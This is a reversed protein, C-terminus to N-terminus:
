SYLIWLDGVQGDSSGPASTSQYINRAVGGSNNAYSTTIQSARFNAESITLNGSSAGTFSGTGVLVRDASEDWGIFVNDDSGREIVIGSDGSASGSNGTGLEILQDEITTNTASNTVTSGNVTLDGSVVVDNFTVDSSTGVAQGISVTATAGESGSGSVSVGTGASVGAVYNGTTHTTLDVSNNAISTSISVNGKATQTATGTVDGTLAFDSDAVVFDLNGDTDDYSVSIGTETGDLMGGVFDEVNEQTLQTNNTSISGGLAVATGDITISSNSLLSNGISGALKSAAISGALMANTVGGAKVQLTDSDTEISSDDVNVSVVGSSFALGDGAVTSSLAVDNANATIGDGGIVNLTVAGSSGGGTLGTGATVSEIDGADNTFSFAGTSSDYSLDGGASFLGRIHSSSVALDIAADGSDDYSATIGTHSGNTVLQAGVTDQINEFPVRIELDNNADDYSLAVNVGASLLGNVRDDVRENTFYLNSGEAVSGTDLSLSGGLSVSSGNLTIASNALEANAVGGNKITVAGSSVAFNDSSFSAVGKNSTTADEASYTVTGSSEAVDIGEGASFTITGGLSTATSNSGDTVTISSNALKSNAISGALMANTVGAAKVQVTDSSIELSSDDVNVNLTADGSTAGGTLGSGAVVSSIDGSGTGFGADNDFASLPIESILKRRDAGNDLIILEDETNDVNATMDTLESLDVALSVAGSSGGGSLGVGATVSEIDGADNTFSIVGTSSNYSLDGSASIASRARANTFYLNSSGEGIDDTDLTASGGLSVSNSNITVASNALKSNAISGALMANTVGSAKVRVTDSDIELSSDDVQVNLTVDGSTGGGTLGSGAVVSTIDASNTNAITLSGAGDDYTLSIGTGATLLADVRDDVRENTFYLNTSGETIEDTNDKTAIQAEVFAKVSQQSPIHTASNSAMNDEDKIANAIRADARANTYYLNSSGESLDDTDKSSLDLNSGTQLNVRADARANTFYLNSSGETLGDTNEALNVFTSGDNTFQWKDNSEDYQFKVNTSTGREVEIGADQSPTGSENNNLVILNDDVTLTETNITTTTGNVTLNGNFIADNSFTKAGAITQTGSTRVVTSDVAIDNANATIGDGGVVDLTASSGLSIAGGGTLGAGATVTTSSNSLKSNAISGALMANTIGAAKVRLSDSDIEISSDDVGVSLVGSSHALGNGAVSSDLTLTVDGSTGGGTLGDGAVVSTIDGVQGNITLTGASDDYSLTIGTGATLLTNVQDDIKELAATGFAAATLDGSSDIVETSGISLGNKIRFNQAAM